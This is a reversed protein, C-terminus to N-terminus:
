APKMAYPAAPETPKSPHCPMSGRLITGGKEGNRIELRAAYALVRERIGLLGHTGAKTRDADNIGIGDDAIEFEIDDGTRYAHAAVRTARAHKVVNSLAEQFVRFIAIPCGEDDSTLDGEFDFTAKVNARRSWEEIYQELAPGLGLNDLMSPRLESILDRKLEIASKLLGLTRDLKAAQEPNTPAIKDRARSVDMNIATLYSGFDDHLNRAISKKEHERVDLLHRALQSLDATRDVVRQELVANSAEANRVADDRQRLYRVMLFYFLTLALGVVVTAVSARILAATYVTAAVSRRDSLLREEEALITGIVGRIAGTTQAGDAPAILAVAGAPGGDRYADLARQMEAFRRESLEKLQEVSARQGASDSVLREVDTLRGALRQRSAEYPELYTANGTLLFGRQSSEAVYLTNGITRIKEMAEITRSVNASSQEVERANRFDIVSSLALLGMAALYATLLVLPASWSGSGKRAASPRIRM